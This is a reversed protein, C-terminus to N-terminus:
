DHTERADETIMLLNTRYEVVTAGDQNKGEVGLTVVGSHDDRPTKELVEVEFHVTDDIFVPRHFQIAEMGANARIGTPENSYLLGEALGLLFTGQVVREGYQTEEAFERDTHIPLWCGTANAYNVVDSETVTRGITEVTDGVQVNDYFGELVSEGSSESVKVIVRM